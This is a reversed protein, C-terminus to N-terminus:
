RIERWTNQVLGAGGSSRVNSFGRDDFVLNVKANGSSGVSMMGPGDILVGGQILASGGTSILTASSDAVNAHYVVGYYTAGGGLSLSGSTMLVFGPATATNYAVNGTYGCASATEIFVVAGALSAPCTTYFTGNAIATNRLRAIQEATMADGGTYGDTSNNPSIQVDLLARLEAENKIGGSIGHGLCASAPADAIKCRVQVPGISASPGRTDVLEKKGMNTLEMRGAQLAVRPLGEPQPETRVLAVMTRQKGTVTSQSRVWLRGDGNADYTPATTTMTESWFSEAGTSGSNDRVTTTWVASPMTDPSSYLAALTAATPCRSDSSTETCSVPYRLPISTAGGQGPWNRSLQYTQANLAAEAVNFATERRRGDASQDQQTDVLSLTSLGFGAMILMLMLATVLAWGQEDRWPRM